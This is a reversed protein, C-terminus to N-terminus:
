KHADGEHCIEPHHHAANLGIIGYIFSAFFLLFQWMKFTEMVTLNGSFFMTVPVLLPVVYDDLHFIRDKSISAVIIRKLFEFHFIFVYVLPSFIWYLYKGFGILKVNPSPTWSLFPEFFSIEVDHLTNPYIHHSLAHSIRWERYSMLSLNFLRMRLNDKQHFFNHAAIVTWNLFLGAVAAVLYSNTKASLASIGLTILLM